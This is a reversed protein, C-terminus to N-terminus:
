GLFVAFHSVERRLGRFVVPVLVWILGLFLFICLGGVAHYPAFVEAVHALLLECVHHASILGDITLLAMLAENLQNLFDVLRHGLLIHILFLTPDVLLVPHVSM